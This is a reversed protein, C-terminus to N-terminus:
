QVHACFNLKIMLMEWGSYSLTSETSNWQFGWPCCIGQICINPLLQLYISAFHLLSDPTTVNRIVYFGDEIYWITIRRRQLFSNSSILRHFSVSHLPPDLIEGLLPRWSELPPAGVYSKALIEWFSCSISLIQAGPPARTWFKVIYIRWQQSIYRRSQSVTKM